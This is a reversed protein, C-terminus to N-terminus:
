DDSLERRVARSFRIADTKMSPSTFVISARGFGFALDLLSDMEYDSFGARLGRRGMLRWYPNIQRPLEEIDDMGLPDFVPTLGAADAVEAFAEPQSEWLGEAWWAAQRDGLHAQFFDVLAIKNTSTPRFSAPTRFLIRHADLDDYLTVVRDWRAKSGSTSFGGAVPDIGFGLVLGQTTMQDTWKRVTKDKVNAVIKEDLEMIQFQDWYTQASDALGVCGVSISPLSEM